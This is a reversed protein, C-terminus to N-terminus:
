RGALVEAVLDALEQPTLEEAGPVDAVAQAVLDALDDVAPQLDKSIMGGFASSKEAAAPAAPTKQGSASEEVAGGAGQGQDAHVEDAVKVGLGPKKEKVLEAVEKWWAAQLEANDAAADVTRWLEHSSGELIDYLANLKKEEKYWEVDRGWGFDQSILKRNEADDPELADANLWWRTNINTFTSRDM